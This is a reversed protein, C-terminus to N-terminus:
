HFDGSKNGCLLHELAKGFVMRLSRAESEIKRGSIEIIASYLLKENLGVHQIFAQRAEFQSVLQEVSPLWLYTERLEGPTLGQPDVLISITEYDDRSAIEDGIEPNWRLGSLDLVRSTSIFNQYDVKM